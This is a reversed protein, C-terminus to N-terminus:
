LNTHKLEFSYLKSKNLVFKLRIPYGSLSSIDANSRWSVIQIDSDLVQDCNGLLYDGIENGEIDLIGVKISGTSNIALRVSNSNFIIPRTILFGSGDISVFGDLRQTWRYYTRPPDGGHPGGHDTYQWIENGRRILGYISLQEPDSDSDIPIYWGQSPEFFKWNRGDRSVGLDIHRPPDDGLHRPYRWVFSLYVDSAWPYKIVRSRYAEGSVTGDFIIPGECTVAPLTWGEYYPNELSTFPWPKLPESTEFLICQRVGGPCNETNFSADRRLHTVYMGRQDDYYSEAGGGSVLSLMTTENRRWNVGDPSFFLHIGRNGIWSTLKFKEEKRVDPNTDRFFTGYFPLNDFVAKIIKEGTRSQGIAINFREFRRKEDDLDEFDRHEHERDEPKQLDPLPHILMSSVSPAAQKMGDLYHDFTNGNQIFALHHWNGDTLLSLQTPCVAKQGYYSSIIEIEGSPTTFLSFGPQYGQGLDILFSETPLEPLNIWFECTWRGRQLTTLLSGPGETPGWLGSVMGDDERIHENVVKGAFGAYAVNYGKQATIRLGNGFKGQVLKGNPMLRLDYYDPGADCLTAYPYMSEDFLWLAKTHEDPFTSSLEQSHINTLILYLLVLIVALKM